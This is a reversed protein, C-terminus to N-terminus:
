RNKGQGPDQGAAPLNGVPEKFPVARVPTGPRVNQLGEVILRDGPALGGTVLWKNGMARDIELMRQEVKGDQNVVLAIPNGKPDRGVGQQPILLADEKLGEEVITRVFM